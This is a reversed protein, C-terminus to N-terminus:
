SGNVAVLHFPFPSSSPAYSTIRQRVQPCRKQNPAYKSQELSITVPLTQSATRPFTCLDYVDARDARDDPREDHHVYKIGDAENDEIVCNHIHAQGTSSNMYIGYGSLPFSATLAKEKKFSERAPLTFISRRLTKRDQNRLRKWRVRKM